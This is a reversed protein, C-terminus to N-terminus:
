EFMGKLAAKSVMRIEVGNMKSQVCELLSKYYPILIMNFRPITRKPSCCGSDMQRLLVYLIHTAMVPFIM